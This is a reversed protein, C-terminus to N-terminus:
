KLRDAAQPHSLSGCEEIDNLGLFIWDRLLKIGEGRFIFPFNEIEHHRLCVQPEKEKLRLHVGLMNKILKRHIIIIIICAHLDFKTSLSLLNLLMM